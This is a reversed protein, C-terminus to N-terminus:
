KKGRIFALGFVVMLIFWWSALLAFGASAALNGDLLTLYVSVITCLVFLVASIFSAITTLM